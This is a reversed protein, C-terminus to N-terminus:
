KDFIRLGATESVPLSFVVAHAPTSPGAKDMIAQMINKKNERTSVIYFMDKEEALTVGLFRDGGTGRAHVLTGGGAGVERAADMITDAHGRESIVVILETQCDAMDKVETTDVM